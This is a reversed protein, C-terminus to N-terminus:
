AAESWPRRRTRSRCTSTPAHRGHQRAQGRLRLHRGARAAGRRDPDGGGTQAHRDAAACQRVPRAVAAHRRQSVRGQAQGHRDLSRGSQGGGHAHRARDRRQHRLAARRGGAARARFRQQGPRSGTAASQVGGLDAQAAHDGRNGFQRRLRARLQRRRGHPHRHPRFDARHNHHLRLTAQANEIAAQDAQVLATYQAVLAKQTDAQQKNIANTAVLSQYRVLDNQRQRAPSRGAGEQGAGPRAPGQLDHSRHAGARRGKQRGPRGQFQSRPAQRGGAPARDRHQAAAPASRM